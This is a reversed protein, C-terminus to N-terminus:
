DFFDTTHSINKKILKEHSTYKNYRMDFDKGSVSVVM